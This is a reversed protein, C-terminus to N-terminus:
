VGVIDSSADIERAHCEQVREGLFVGPTAQTVECPREVLGDGEAPRRDSSEVPGAESWGVVLPGSAKPRRKEEVVPNRELGLTYAAQIFGL